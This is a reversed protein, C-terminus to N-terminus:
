MREPTEIGLTNLGKELQRLTLEALALRSAKVEDPVTEALIPCDAYFRSFSQAVRYIHDCLIHPAYKEAAAAVARGFGDLALVLQAEAPDAVTMQGPPVGEDKARRLTSKIRM